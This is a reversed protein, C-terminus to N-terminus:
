TTETEICEDDVYILVSSFQNVELVICNNYDGCSMTYCNVVGSNLSIITVGLIAACSTNLVIM